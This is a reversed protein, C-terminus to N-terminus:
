QLDSALHHRICQHCVFQWYKFGQSHSKVSIDARFSLIMVLLQVLLVVGEESSPQLESPSYGAGIAALFFVRSPVGSCELHSLKVLLILLVVDEHSSQLLSLLLQLAMADLPLLVLWGKKLGCLTEFLLVLLLLPLLSSWSTEAPPDWSGSWWLSSSTTCFVAGSLFIFNLRMYVEVSIKSMESLYQLKLSGRYVYKQFHEAQFLLKHSIRNIWVFTLQRM